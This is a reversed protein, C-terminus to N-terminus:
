LGLGNKRPYARGYCKLRFRRERKQKRKIETYGSKFCVEFLMELGLTSVRLASPM